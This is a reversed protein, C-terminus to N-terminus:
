NVTWSLSRTHQSLSILFLLLTGSAISKLILSMHKGKRRRPWLITKPAHIRQDERYRGRERQVTPSTINNARRFGGKNKANQPGKYAKRGDVKMREMEISLSKVMKTLEDVQPHTVSPSSTSAEFRGKRRDTDAKNRLRDTELVNSEV